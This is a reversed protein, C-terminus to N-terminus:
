RFLYKIVALENANPKLTVTKNRLDSVSVVLNNSKVNKIQSLNITNVSAEPTTKQFCCLCYITYGIFCLSLRLRLCVYFLFKGIFRM